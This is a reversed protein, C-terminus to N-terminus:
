PKRATSAQALANTVAGQYAKSSDTAGSVFDVAGSQRAVVEGPLADVKSCSYRTGCQSIAASVIKGGQIVVTAEIGGHRSTGTGVYTGDRYGTAAAAAATPPVTAAAVAPPTTPAIIAPPFMATTPATAAPSRTEAPQATATPAALSPAPPSTAPAPTLLGGFAPSFITPARTPIGAPTIAETAAPIVASAVAVVPANQHAAAAETRAYGIGYVSVIAASSLAILGNAIKKGGRKAPTRAANDSTRAM